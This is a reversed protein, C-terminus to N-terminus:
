IVTGPAIKDALTEADMSVPAKVSNDDFENQLLEWISRTIWNFDSSGRM